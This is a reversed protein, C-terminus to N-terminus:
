LLELINPDRVEMLRVRQYQTVRLKCIKRHIRTEIPEDADLRDHQSLRRRYTGNLSDMDGRCQLNLYKLAIYMMKNRFLYINRQYSVKM